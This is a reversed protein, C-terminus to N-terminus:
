KEGDKRLSNLVIFVLYVITQKERLAIDTLAMMLYVYDFWPIRKYASLCAFCDLRTYVTFEIVM